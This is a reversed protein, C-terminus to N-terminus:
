KNGTYIHVDSKLIRGYRVKVSDRMKLEPRNPYLNVDLIIVRALPTEAHHKLIYKLSLGYMDNKIGDEPEYNSPCASLNAYSIPTGDIVTIGTPTLTPCVQADIGNMLLLTVLTSARDYQALREEDTNTM